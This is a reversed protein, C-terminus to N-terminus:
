IPVTSTLPQSAVIREQIKQELKFADKNAKKEIRRNRREEKVAQKRTKKEEKSEEKKRAYNMSCITESHIEEDKNGQYQKKLVDSPIGLKKTLKIPKPETILKPHNYLNSYTSIISECDWKEREPEKFKEFEEESEKGNNEPDVFTHIPDSDELSQKSQGKNFDSIAQDVLLKEENMIENADDNNDDELGGIDDDDYEEMIKEFQDDLLQLGQTRRIVSSTMSYSTFRSKTEENEFDEVSGDGIIFDDSGFERDSYSGDSEGDYYKNSLYDGSTGDECNAHLMFDDELVNDPDDMDLGDDLAAVIDPDWDPQPGRPLVGKELMGEPEEYESAFADKPFLIGGFEKSVTDTSTSPGTEDAMLLVGDGRPKLHQMYDYEDDFFVGHKKLEEKQGDPKEAPHLVFESADPDAQLPDRQDRHVLHFRVSRKKDIFPKKNKGM